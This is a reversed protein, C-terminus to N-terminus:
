PSYQRHSRQKRVVCDDMRKASEVSGDFRSDSERSVPQGGTFVRGPTGIIKRRFRYGFGGTKGAQAINIGCIPWAAARGRGNLFRLSRAVAPDHLLGIDRQVENEVAFPFLKGGLGIRLASVRNLVDQPRASRASPGSALVEPYLVPGLRSSGRHPPVGNSVVQVERRANVSRTGAPGNAVM